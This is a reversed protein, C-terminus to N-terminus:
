PRAAPTREQLYRRAIDKQLDVKERTMNLNFPSPEIEVVQRFQAEALAHEGRLAYIQGLVFRPTIMRPFAAILRRYIAIAPDYERLRTLIEAQLIAIGIDGSYRAAEDLEGLAERLQGSLFLATAHYKLREGNRSWALADRYKQEALWLDHQEMLRNARGEDLEARMERYSCVTWGLLIVVLGAGLAYSTRRRPAWERARVDCHPLVLGSLSWFALATAAHPLAATFLMACICAALALYTGPHNTRLATSHWGKWLAGACLAAFGAFAALGATAGWHLLDNHADKVAGANDMLADYHGTAFLVAQAPAHFLDFHGLGVGTLPHHVLMYLASLWILARGQVTHVLTAPWDLLHLSTAGVVLALAIGTGAVAVKRQLSSGLWAYGLPVLLVAILLAQRSQTAILATTLLLLNAVSVARRVGLARGVRFFAIPAAALLVFAALNPNGLTSYIRMKGLAHFGPDFLDPLLWQKLALLAVGVGAILLGTEIAHESEDDRLNFLCFVLALFPVLQALEAAALHKNEAAGTSVSAAVLLVLLAAGISGSPIRWPAPPQRVLFLTALLVIGIGALHRKLEFPGAMQPVFLWVVAILLIALGNAFSRESRLSM